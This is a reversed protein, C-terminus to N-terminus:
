SMHSEGPVTRVASWSWPWLGTSRVAARAAIPRPVVPRPVVPRPVTARPRERKAYCDSGRAAPVVAASFSATPTPSTTSPFSTASPSTHITSTREPLYSAHQAQSIRGRGRTVKREVTAEEKGDPQSTIDAGADIRAKPLHSMFSLNGALMFGGFTHVAKRHENLSRFLKGINQAGHTLEDFM